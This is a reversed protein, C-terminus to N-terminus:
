PSRHSATVPPKSHLQSLVVSQVDPSHSVVVCWHTVVHEAAAGHVVPHQSETLPVQKWPVVSVSQPVLPKQLVQVPVVGTHMREPEDTPVHPPQLVAASQAAAEHLPVLKVGAAVHTDLAQTEPVVTSQESVPSTQLKVDPHTCHLPEVSQVPVAEHLPVVSTGGAFVQTDLTQSVLLGDVYQESVPSTQLAVSPSHTCHLKEVSQVPVAEHLPLTKVGAGVHM